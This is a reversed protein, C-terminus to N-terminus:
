YVSEIEAVAASEVELWNSRTRWWFRFLFRILRPREEGRRQKKKKKKERRETNVRRGQAGSENSGSCWRQLVRGNWQGQGDDM